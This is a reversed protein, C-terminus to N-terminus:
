RGQKKGIEGLTMPVLHRPGSDSLDVAVVLEIDVVHVEVQRSSRRDRAARPTRCRHALRQARLLCRQQRLESACVRRAAHVLHAIGTDQRGALEAPELVIGLHIGDVEVGGLRVLVAVPAYVLRSRYAVRFRLLDGFDAPPEQAQLGNELWLLRVWLVPRVWASHPHENDVLLCPLGNVLIYGITPRSQESQWDAHARVQGSRGSYVSSLLTPSIM